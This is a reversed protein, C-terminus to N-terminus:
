VELHTIQCRIEERKVPIGWSENQKDNIGAGQRQAAVFHEPFGVQVM